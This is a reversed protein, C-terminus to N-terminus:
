EDKPKKRPKRTGAVAKLVKVGWLTNLIVPIFGALMLAPVFPDADMFKRARYISALLAPATANRIGLFSLGFLVNNVGIYLCSYWRQELLSM